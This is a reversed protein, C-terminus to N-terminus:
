GEAEYRGYGDVRPSCVLVCNEGNTASRISFLGNKHGFACRNAEGQDAHLPPLFDIAWRGVLKAVRPPQIVLETGPLGAEQRNERYHFSVIYCIPIYERGHHAV